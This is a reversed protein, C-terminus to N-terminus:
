DRMQRNYERALTEPTQFISNILSMAKDSTWDFDFGQDQAKEELALCIQVLSMSDILSEVGILPTDENLLIDDEIVTKILNILEQTTM